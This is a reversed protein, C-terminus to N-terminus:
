REKRGCMQMMGEMAWFRVSGGAFSVRASNAASGETPMTIWELSTVSRIHMGCNGGIAFLAFYIPAPM